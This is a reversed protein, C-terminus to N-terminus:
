SESVLEDFWQSHLNFVVLASNLVQTKQDSSLVLSNLRDKLIRRLSETSQSYKYLSFGGDQIGETGWKKKLLKGIIQGGGLDAMFRVYVLAIFSEDSDKCREVIENIAGSKYVSTVSSSFYKLDSKLAESRFLEPVFLCQLFESSKYEILAKQLFLAIDLLGSLYKSYLERGIEGTLLKEIFIHKEIQDHVQEVATKLDKTLM